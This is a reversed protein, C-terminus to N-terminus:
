RFGQQGQAMHNFARIVGMGQVFEIMRAGARAQMDQRRIGLKSLQRSTALFVPLAVVASVATALALLPDRALLVLFIAAPLGLAQAIRPLGDSFFSELMQMDSTLVTVTDGRHRAQHFGLPLHRLKELIRLRLHGAM